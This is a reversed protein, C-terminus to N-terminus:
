RGAERRQQRFTADRGGVIRAGTEELARAIMAAVAPVKKRIRKDRNGGLRHKMQNAAVLKRCELDGIGNQERRREVDEEKSAARRRQALSEEDRPERRQRRHEPIQRPRMGFDEGPRHHQERHRKEVLTAGRERNQERRQARQLIRRQRNEGDRERDRREPAGTRELRKDG